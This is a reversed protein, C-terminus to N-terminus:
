KKYHIYNQESLLTRYKGPSIKMIKKFVASFYEISRYGSEFTIEKVTLDTTTLLNCAYKLRINNLYENFTTGLHKKFLSGLYNTSVALENALADLTINKRFNFKIISVANQIVSPFTTNTNKSAKRILMVILQSVVSTKITDSFLDSSNEEELSNFMENAKNLEEETITCILNNPSTSIYKLLEPAIYNENFRLSLLSLDTHARVSHYDCYSILYASGRNIKFTNGNYVQEGEGDLIIELEFYDHWHPLIFDNAKLRKKEWEMGHEELLEYINMYMKQM